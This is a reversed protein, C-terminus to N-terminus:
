SLWYLLSSGACGAFLHTKKFLFSVWPSVSLHLHLWAAKGPPSCWNCAKNGVEGKVRGWVSDKSKGWAVSRGARELRWGMDWKFIKRLPEGERVVWGWVLGPGGNDLTMAVWVRGGSRKRPLKITWLSEWTCVRAEGSQPNWATFVGLAPESDRLGWALVPHAPLLCGITSFSSFSSFLLTM